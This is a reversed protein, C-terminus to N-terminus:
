SDLIDENLDKKSLGASSFSIALAGIQTPIDIYLLINYYPFGYKRMLLAIALIAMAAYFLKRALPNTNIPDSADKFLLGYALKLFIAGGVLILFHMMRIQLLWPAINLMAMIFGVGGAIM